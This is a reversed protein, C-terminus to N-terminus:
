SFTFLYMYVYFSFTCFTLFHSMESHIFHLIRSFICHLMEVATSQMHYTAVPLNIGSVIFRLQFLLLRVSKQYIGNQLSFYYAIIYVSQIKQDRVTHNFESISLLSQTEFYWLILMKIKFVFYTISNYILSFVLVMMTNGTFILRFSDIEM